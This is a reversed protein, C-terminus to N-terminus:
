GEAEAESMKPLDEIEFLERDGVSSNPNREEIKRFGLNGVEFPAWDGNEQLLLVDGVSTSRRNMVHEKMWCAGRVGHQLDKWAEELAEQGSFRKTRGLAVKRYLSQREEWSEPHEFFAVGRPAERKVHYAHVRTIGDGGGAADREDGTRANRRGKSSRGKSDEGRSHRRITEERDTQSM